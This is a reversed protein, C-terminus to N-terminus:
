FLVRTKLSTPLREIRKKVDKSIRQEYDIDMILYGVDNRTSLYQSRINGGMEAIIGTIDRLVGPVNKHINLIRHSDTLVPLEVEPFNVAGTTSGTDSYRALKSSVELAINHQAEETSGGIHPTLIVNELGCLPSKFKQENSEPEEPFVDVAAGALHNNRLAKALAEIDVVSGRSLNLLYSGKKMLKLQPEAILNKTHTTEPVHLTVFDSVQLLEKLSSLQVANGLALKSIIDYFVVKMGFAEALLGVQPGIHGYGIIGVTKQRIEFCNTASKDWIGEHLKQSKFAAKRSLMVIEALTLEAVSRTNSFPANFVPIGACEADDLAVQNTGICFCGIALLNSAAKIAKPSIDTKSRIGLIHVNPIIKLLEAESLAPKRTEVNTYGAEKFRNVAAAHIGEVLLVKIKDRPFSVKMPIEEM